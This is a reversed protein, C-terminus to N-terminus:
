LEPLFSWSRGASSFTVRDGAIRVTYGNWDDGDPISSTRGKSSVIAAPTCAACSGPVIVGMVTVDPRRTPRSVRAVPRPKPTAVEARPATPAPAVAPATPPDASASAVDPASAQVGPEGTSSSDPIPDPATAAAVALSQGGASDGTAPEPQPASPTVGDDAKAASTDGMDVVGFNDPFTIPKPEGDDGVFSPPPGVQLSVFRDSQMDPLEVADAVSSDELEPTASEDGVTTPASTTSSNRAVAGTPTSFGSTVLKGVIALAVILGLAIGPLRSPKSRTKKEAPGDRDRASRAQTEGSPEARPAASRRKLESLWNSAASRVSAVIRGRRSVSTSPRVEAGDDARPAAPEASASGTADPPTFDPVAFDGSEDDAGVAALIREDDDLVIQPDDSSDVPQDTKPALSPADLLPDYGPPAPDGASDIFKQIPDDGPQETKTSM